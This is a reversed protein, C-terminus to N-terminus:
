VDESNKVIGKAIHQELVSKAEDYTKFRVMDLPTDEKFMPTGYIQYRMSIKYDDKQIAFRGKCHECLINCNLTCWDREDIDEVAECRDSEDQWAAPELYPCDESYEKDFGYEEKYGTNEECCKRIRYVKQGEQCPVVQVGSAILSDLIQDLATESFQTTFKAPLAEPLPEFTITDLVQRLIEKETM